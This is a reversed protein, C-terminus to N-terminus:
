KGKKASVPVMPMFCRECMPYDRLAIEGAHIDKVTRCQVCKVKVVVKSM